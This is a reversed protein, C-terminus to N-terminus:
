SAIGSRDDDALLIRLARLARSGSDKRSSKAFWYYAEEDSMSAIGEVVSHRRNPRNLPTGANIALALRIAAPESLEVPKRRAPGITTPGHGSDRLASRVLPLFPALRDATIRAAIVPVESHADIEEVRLHYTDTGVPEVVLQFSRTRTESRNM